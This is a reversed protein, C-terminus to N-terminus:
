KTEGGSWIDVIYEDTNDTEQSETEEDSSPKQRCLPCCNSENLWRSICDFHFGHPCPLFCNATLDSQYCIPCSEATKEGFSYIKAHIRCISSDGVSCRCHHKDAQCATMSVLSSTEPLWRCVCQHDISLCLDFEDPSLSDCVCEHDDSHCSGLYETDLLHCLCHHDNAMCQIVTSLKGRLTDCLCYHTTSLCTRSWDSGARCICGHKKARCIEGGYGDLSADHRRQCICTHGNTSRCIKVFRFHRDCSCKHNGARCFIPSPKDYGDCICSHTTMRCYGPGFHQYCQCKHKKKQGKATFYARFSHNRARCGTRDLGCLCQHTQALCSIPNNLCSCSHSDVSGLCTLSDMQCSCAHQDSRCLSSSRVNACVCLHPSSGRCNSTSFQCSCKHTVACCHSNDYTPSSVCCVCNRRESEQDPEIFAARSDYSWCWSKKVVLRGDKTLVSHLGLKKCEGHVKILQDQPYNVM